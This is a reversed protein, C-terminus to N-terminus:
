FHFTTKAAFMGWHRKMPDALNDELSRPQTLAV